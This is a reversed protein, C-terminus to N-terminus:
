PIQVYEKVDEGGWCEPISEDIIESLLGIAHTRTTTYSVVVGIANLAIIVDDFNDETIENVVYDVKNLMIRNTTLPANQDVFMAPLETSFKGTKAIENIKDLRLKRFSALKTTNIVNEMPKIGPSSLVKM